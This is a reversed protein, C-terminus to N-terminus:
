STNLEATSAQLGFLQRDHTRALHQDLVGRWEAPPEGHAWGKMVVAGVLIKRRLDASRERQRERTRLADRRATLATIRRELDDLRSVSRSEAKATMRAVLRQNEHHRISGPGPDIAREGSEGRDM